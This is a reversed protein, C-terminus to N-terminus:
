ELSIKLDKALEVFNEVSLFKNLDEPTGLGFVKEDVKGINLASVTFGLEILYNYSPAVYFENNTRDNVRVMRDFSDFFYNAKQWGYIGVTAETSIQIKEVVKHVFGYSNRAVYSWKDESAQMTLISGASTSNCVDELFENLNVNVYQDSNAVILPLEPDLHIRARNVSDAPGETQGNIIIFNINLKSRKFWNERLNEIQDGSKVIIFIQDSENLDFNGIVWNIMPIGNVPILPKIEKYGAQQFRLGNGAAPIVIQIAKRKL